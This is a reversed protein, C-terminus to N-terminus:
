KFEETVTERSSTGETGNRKQEEVYAQIVKYDPPSITSPLDHLDFFQLEQVEDHDVRLEGEYERCVYAAIVNYSEDGHPYKYYFDAGSLIKFFTLEKAKLGTEELLEREAVEELTEGPEMSGGALGWCNNDKRLQLLLRNNEDFLLVSSGTLILPRSGLQKRLEMVYGM